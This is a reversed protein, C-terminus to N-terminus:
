SGASALLVVLVVLGVNLLLGNLGWVRQSKALAAPDIRWPRWEWLLRNANRAYWIGLALHGVAALMGLPWWAESLPEFILADAIRLALFVGAWVTPGKALPWLVPFFFAGWNFRDLEAPLPVLRASEVSQAAHGHICGGGDRLWVDAACEACYGARAAVNGGIQERFAERM